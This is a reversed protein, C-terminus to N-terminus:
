LSALVDFHRDRHLIEVGHVRACAFIIRDPYPFSHGKRRGAETLEIARQWVADTVPLDAVLSAYQGLLRRERQDRIGGWLELRVAACWAAHGSVLLSAVRERSEESGGSRLTDIWVSSDILM